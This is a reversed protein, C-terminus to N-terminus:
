SCSWPTRPQRDEAHRGQGAAQPLPRGAAPHRRPAPAAAPMRLPIVNLRFFLDARFRGEAVERRWTRRQDRGRAPLRDQDAAHRRGPHDRAGAARAAAQGADRAADRGVEDLFFTGGEAVLFLGPTDKVAGTFSGKMHGFLNSELLDRPIAGCNISVFPGTARRSRYHIERAILEKGTGSDGQILITAESDAVKDVMKFVRTM